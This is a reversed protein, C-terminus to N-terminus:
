NRSSFSLKIFLPINDCKNNNWFKIFAAMAIKISFADHFITNKVDLLKTILLIIM